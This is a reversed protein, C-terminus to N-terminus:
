GQNEILLGRERYSNVFKEFGEEFHASIPGIGFGGVVEKGCEPCKWLDADYLAYPGFDAMDLVGVGNREPHLEVHCQPCVPRHYGSAVQKHTINEVLAKGKLLTRLSSTVQYSSLSTDKYTIRLIIENGM